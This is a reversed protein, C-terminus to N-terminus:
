AFGSPRAFVYDIADCRHLELQEKVRCEAQRKLRPEVKELGYGYRNKPTKISM